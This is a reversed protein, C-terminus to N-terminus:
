PSTVRILEIKLEVTVEGGKQVKVGNAINDPYSVRISEKQTCCNGGKSRERRKDAINDLSTIRISEKKHAVTEKSQASVDNAINDPATV